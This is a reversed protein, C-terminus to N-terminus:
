LKKSQYYKNICSSKSRNLEEAIENFTYGSKKLQVLKNYENSKWNIQPKM